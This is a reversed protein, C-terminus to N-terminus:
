TFRTGGRAPREVRLEGRLASVSRRVVDLGVGRGSVTSVDTRTSLGARLDAGGGGDDAGAAGSLGRGTRSPRIAKWTWGRGTTRWWSGSGTGRRSRWSGSTGHRPKGAAEREEPAEIGHDIANRVLHLLPEALADATSKDVETSEGEVVLRAEKGQERALRRVLGHFRGLTRSLPVLRLSM